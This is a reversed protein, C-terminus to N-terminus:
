CAGSVWCGGGTGGAELTARGFPLTDVARTTRTGDVGRHVLAAHDIPGGPTSSSSGGPHCPRRPGVPSPLRPLRRPLVHLCVRTLVLLHHLIGHQCHWQSLNDQHLSPAGIGPYVWCNNVCSLAVHNPSLFLQLPLAPVVHQTAPHAVVHGRGGEGEALLKVLYQSYKGKESPWWRGGPWGRCCGCLVPTIIHRTRSTTAPHSVPKHTLSTCSPNLNVNSVKQQVRTGSDDDCAHMPIGPGMTHEAHCTHACGCLGAWCARQAAPQLCSSPLM